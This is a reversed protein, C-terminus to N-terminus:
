VKNTKPTLSGYSRPKASVTRQDICPATLMHPLLRRHLNVKFACFLLETLQALLIETRLSDEFQQKLNMVIGLKCRIVHSPRKPIDAIPICQCMVWVGLMSVLSLEKLQDLGVERLTSMPHYAVTRLSVPLNATAEQVEPPSAVLERIFISWQGRLVPCHAKFRYFM